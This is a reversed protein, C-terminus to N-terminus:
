CKIAQLLGVFTRVQENKLLTSLHANHMALALRCARGGDADEDFCQRLSEEYEEQYVARSLSRQLPSTKLLSVASMDLHKAKLFVQDDTNIVSSDLWLTFCMRTKAAPLVRHLIRDSQFVVTRDMSPSITVKKGLFPLLQLEGGDGDVWDPNLYVLVTLRRKNPRSPNDYHWPFCGGGGANYQLKM